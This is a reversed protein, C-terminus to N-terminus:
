LADLLERMEDVDDRAEAEKHRAATAAKAAKDLGAKLTRANKALPELLEMLREYLRITAETKTKVKTVIAEAEGIEDSDFKFSVLAAGASVFKRGAKGLKEVGESAGGLVTVSGSAAGGKSSGLAYDVVLQATVSGGALLVRALVGTPGLLLTVGSIATNIARQLKAEEVEKEAKKLDASLAKLEKELEAVKKQGNALMQLLLAVVAGAITALRADALAQFRENQAELVGLSVVYREYAALLKAQDGSGAVAKNWQGNFEGRAKDLRAADAKYEKLAASGLGKVEASGLLAAHAEEAADADDDTSATQEQFADGEVLAKLANPDAM